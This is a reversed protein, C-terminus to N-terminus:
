INGVDFLEWDTEDIGDELLISGDLEYKSGNYNLIFSSILESNPFHKSGYLSIDNTKDNIKVNSIYMYKNNWIKRRIGKNEKAGQQLAEMFTM